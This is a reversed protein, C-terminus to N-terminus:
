MSGLRRREFKGVVEVAHGFKAATTLLGAIEVRHLDEYSGGMGEDGLLIQLSVSLGLAAVKGHLRCLNCQVCNMTGLLDRTRLRAKWVKASSSTAHRRMSAAAKQVDEHVLLPDSTLALMSPLVQDATGMYSCNKLRPAAEHIACLMIMYSFHLNAIAEPHNSIRRKYEAFAEDSDYDWGKVEMMNELVHASVSAHLGSIARNFDRKWANEPDNIDVQFCIREHIFKWVVRGDYETWREPEQVLDYYDTFDGPMDWRVWGDLRFDHETTDRERMKDPVDESCEIECKDMECPSDETPMYTCSSLLDVAFLRFFEQKRIHELHPLLRSHNNRIQSVGDRYCPVFDVSYQYPGVELETMRLASAPSSQTRLSPPITFVIKKSSFSKEMGRANAARGGGHMFGMPSISFGACPTMVGSLCCMALVVASASSRM